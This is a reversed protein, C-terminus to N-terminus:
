EASHDRVDELPGDEVSENQECKAATQVLYSAKSQNKIIPSLFSGDFKPSSLSASKANEIAETTSRPGPTCCTSCNALHTALCQSCRCSKSPIAGSRLGRRSM